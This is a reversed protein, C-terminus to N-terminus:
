LATLGRLQESKTVLDFFGRPRGSKLLWDRFFRTIWVPSTSWNFARRSVKQYPQMIDSRVAEYCRLAASGAGPIPNCRGLQYAVEAADQLAASVGGGPMYLSGGHAADGVLSICGHGWASLLELGDVNAATIGDPAKDLLSSLSSPVDAALARIFDSPTSSVLHPATGDERERAAVSISVRGCHSPYATVVFPQDM